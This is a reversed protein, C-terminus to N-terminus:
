LGSGLQVLKPRSFSPGLLKIVPVEIGSLNPEIVSNHYGAKNLTEM